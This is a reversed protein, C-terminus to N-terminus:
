PARTTTKTSPKPTPTPTPTPTVPPTTTRTPTPTPTPPPPPPPPEPAPNPIAGGPLLAKAMMTLTQAGYSGYISRAGETLLAVTFRDNQIFGTSHMRTVGELCCMWGQKIRWPSTAAPLGYYQYFGDSGDPTANAMASLLWPGVVPDNAVAAYYAVMARATVSTLGWYNHIPAPALGDVHYRNAVWGVVDEAGVVTYLESATDDDSQTIMFWMKDRIAPDNAQGDVLLRTAIFLKVLSASAFGADPSGATYVAGTRRDRVAVGVRTARSYGVTAANAVAEEPTTAPPLEPEPPPPLVVQPPRENRPQVPEATTPTETPTPTPEETPTPTPELTATRTPVAELDPTPRAAGRPRFSGASAGVLALAAVLLCLAGTGLRHAVNRRSKRM